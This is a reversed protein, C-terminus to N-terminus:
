RREEGSRQARRRISGLLSEVSEDDGDEEDAGEEEDDDCAALVPLPDMLRWAPLTSLASALLYGGKITWAVYGVSMLVSAATAAGVTMVGLQASAALQERLEDLGGWLNGADLAALLQDATLVIPESGTAEARAELVHQVIRSVYTGSTELGQFDVTIPSLTVEAVTL